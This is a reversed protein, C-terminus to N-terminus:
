KEEKREEENRKGLIICCLSHCYVCLVTIFNNLEYFMSLCTIKIM